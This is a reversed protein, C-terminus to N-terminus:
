AKREFAPRAGVTQRHGDRAYTSFGDRAAMLEAQRAMADRVGALAAAFLATNHALAASVRAVEAAPHDEAALRDILRAKRNANDSLAEFDASLLAAREAGLAELILRITDAM